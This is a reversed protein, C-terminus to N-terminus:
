KKRDTHKRFIAKKTKQANATTDSFGFTGNTRNAFAINLLV